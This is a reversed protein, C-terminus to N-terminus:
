KGADAPESPEQSAPNEAPEADGMKRRMRERLQRARDIMAPDDDAVRELTFHWDIHSGIRIPLLDAVLDPGPLDYLPASAVAPGTYPEFGEKVLRVDYTGYHLFATECPTRGVEEDNLYVMAGAPESTIRITREVCGAALVATLPLAGWRVVNIWRTTAMAPIMGGKHANVCGVIRLAEDRSNCCEERM